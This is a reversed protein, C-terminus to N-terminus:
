TFVFKLLDAAWNFRECDSGQIGVGGEDLRMGTVKVVQNSSYTGMVIIAEFFPTLGVVMRLFFDDM